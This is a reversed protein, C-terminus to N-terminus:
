QCACHSLRRYFLLKELFSFWYYTSIDSLYQKSSIHIEFRIQRMQYVWRLCSNCKCSRLNHFVHQKCEFRRFFFIYWKWKGLNLTKYIQRRWRIISRSLWFKSLSGSAITANTLENLSALDACNHGFIAATAPQTSELNHSHEYEADVFIMILWSFAWCVDQFFDHLWGSITTSNWWHSLFVEPDVLVVDISPWCPFYHPHRSITASPWPSGASSSAPTTFSSATWERPQHDTIKIWWGFTQFTKTQFCLRAMPLFILIAKSRRKIM